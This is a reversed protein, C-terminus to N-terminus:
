FHQLSPSRKNSLKALPNANGRAILFGVLALEMSNVLYKRTNRNTRFKLVVEELNQHRAPVPERARKLPKDYLLFLGTIVLDGAVGNLGVEWYWLIIFLDIM